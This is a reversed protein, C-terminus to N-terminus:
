DSPQHGLSSSSAIDFGSLETGWFEQLQLRLQDLREYLLDRHPVYEDHTMPPKLGTFEQLHLRVRLFAKRVGPPLVAAPAGHWHDLKNKLAMYNAFSKKYNPSAAYRSRILFEFMLLDAGGM